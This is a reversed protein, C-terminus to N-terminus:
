LNTRYQCLKKQKIHLRCYSNGDILLKILAECWLPARPLQARRRHICAACAAQIIRPRPETAAGGSRHQCSSPTPTQPQLGWACSDISGSMCRPCGKCCSGPSLRRWSPRGRSTRRKVEVIYQNKAFFLSINLDIIFHTKTKMYDFCWTYQVLVVQRYM